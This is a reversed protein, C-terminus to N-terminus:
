LVNSQNLARKVQQRYAEDQGYRPDRMAAMLQGVSEFAVPLGHSGTGVSLGTGQMLRPEQPVQPTQSGQTQTGRSLDGQSSDGQVQSGQTQFGQSQHAYQAAMGQVALLMLAEDGSHIATNFAQRQAPTWHQLAWEQAKRYDEEGGAAEYVKRTTTEVQHSLGHMYVDVINKSVGQKALLEYSAASLAGERQYEEGLQQFLAESLGQAQPTQSGRSPDGQTQSGQSEDSQPQPTPTQTGQSQIQPELIM